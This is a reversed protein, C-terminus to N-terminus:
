GESFAKKSKEFKRKKLYKEGRKLHDIHFFRFISRLLLFAFVFVLLILISLCVYDKYKFPPIKSYLAWFVEPLNSILEALIIKAKGLYIGFVDVLNRWFEALRKVFKDANISFLKLVIGNM